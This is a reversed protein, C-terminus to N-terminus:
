EQADSPLIEESPSESADEPVPETSGVSGPEKKWDELHIENPRIQERSLFLVIRKGDTWWPDGTLNRGPDEYSHAGVGGMWGIRHVSGSLIMEQALYDRAEDTDPDIKHTVFGPARVTFRLGIDRSIQGFWVHRGEYTYPTLWLRLHNREHITSRAKQLAFDQPRDFVYLSSVPSTRWRSNFLFSGILKMANGFTLTETPDWNNRGFAVGVQNHEDAIVVLNLPDGRGTGHKDTTEAPFAKLTPVLEELTLDSFTNTPFLVEWDVKQYDLRKGPIPVSFELHHHDMEGIVDVRVHKAGPDYNSYVFGETTGNAPLLSHLKNTELLEAVRRNRKGALSKRHMYAVESAPHYESDLGAPLFWFDNTSTNTLRLWVPQINKKHLPLGFKTEAEKRSLVAVEAIIPGNTDSQARQIQPHYSGPAPKYTACGTLWVFPIALLLIAVTTRMANM